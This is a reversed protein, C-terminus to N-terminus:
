DIYTVEYILGKMQETRYCEFLDTQRIFNNCYPVFSTSSKYYYDTPWNANCGILFLLLILLLLIRM